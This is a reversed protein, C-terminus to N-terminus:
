SNLLVDLSVTSGTYNSCAGGSGTWDHSGSYDIVGCEVTVSIEEMTWNCGNVQDIANCRLRWGPNGSGDNDCHWELVADYTVDPSDEIPVSATWTCVGDVKTPGIWYPSGIVPILLPPGGTWALSIEANDFNCCPCCPCDACDYPNGGGDVLVEGDANFWFTPM